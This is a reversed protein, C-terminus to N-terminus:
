CFMFNSLSSLITPLGGDRMTVPQLSYVLHQGPIMKYHYQNHLCM